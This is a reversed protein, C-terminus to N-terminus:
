LQTQAAVRCTVSYWIQLVVLIVSLFQQMVSKKLTFTFTFWFVQITGQMTCISALSQREVASGRPGVLTDTCLVFYFLRTCRDFVPIFLRMETLQTCVNVFSTLWLCVGVSHELKQKKHFYWSDGNKMYNRLLRWLLHRGICWCICVSFRFINGSRVDSYREQHLSQM